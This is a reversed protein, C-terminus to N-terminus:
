QGGLLAVNERAPDQLIATNMSASLTDTVCCQHGLTCENFHKCLLQANRIVYYCM